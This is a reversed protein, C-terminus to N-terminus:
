QQEPNQNQVPASQSSQTSPTITTGIQPPPAAGVTDPDPLQVPNQPQSTATTIPEQPQVSPTTAVAPESTQLSQDVPAPSAAVVAPTETQATQQQAPPEIPTAASAVPEAITQSVPQENNVPTSQLNPQENNVPVTAGVPVPVPAPAPTNQKSGMPDILSLGFGFTAVMLLYLLDSIDGNYYLGLGDRYSFLLDSFFILAFGLLIVIIPKRFKGGLFKWSLGFIVLSLTLNIADGAAYGLDWFNEMFTAELITNIGGRAVVVLLYYSIGLMILSIALALVKGAITKLGYKAGTAKSLKFIGTTWLPISSFYAIDLFLATPVEEDPYKIVYYTWGAQGVGWMILGLSILFVGLGVGSKLWGWHKASLIGFFGFLIAAIALGAQWYYNIMEGKTGSFFLFAWYVFLLATVVTIIVLKSKRSM